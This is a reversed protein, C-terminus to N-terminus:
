HPGTDLGRLFDLTTISKGTVPVWTPETAMPDSSSGDPHVFTVSRVRLATESLDYEELTIMESIPKGSHRDTGHPNLVYRVSARVLGGQHEVSARDLYTKGGGFESIVVWDRESEIYTLPGFAPPKSPVRRVDRTALYIRLRRAMERCGENFVVLQEPTPSFPKVYEGIHPGNTLTLTYTWRDPREKKLFAMCGGDPTAKGTEKLSLVFRELNDLDDFLADVMEPGGAEASGPMWWLITRKPPEGEARIYRLTETVQREILHSTLRLNFDDVYLVKAKHPAGRNPLVSGRYSIAEPTLEWECSGVMEGDTVKQGDADYEQWREAKFPTGIMVRVTGDSRPLFVGVTAEDDVFVSHYGFEKPGCATLVKRHAWLASPRAKKFVNFM